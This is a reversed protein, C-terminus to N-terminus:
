SFTDVGSSPSALLRSRRFEHLQPTTATSAPAPTPISKTRPIPISSPIPTPAEALTQAPSSHLSHTSLTVSVSPQPLKESIRRRSTPPSSKVVSLTKSNSPFTFDERAKGKDRLVTSSSIVYPQSPHSSSAMFVDWDSQAHGHEHHSLRSSSARKAVHRSSATASSTARKRTEEREREREEMLDNLTRKRRSSGATSSSHGAVITCTSAISSTSVNSTTSAASPHSQPSHPHPLWRVQPRHDRYPM